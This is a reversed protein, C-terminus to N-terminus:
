EGVKIILDFLEKTYLWKTLRYAKVELEWMEQFSSCTTKCFMDPLNYTIRYFDERSYAFVLGKNMHPNESVPHWLDKLFEHIAWNAGDKFLEAGFEQCFHHQGDVETDENYSMIPLDQEYLDAIERAAEEIKKDDIM